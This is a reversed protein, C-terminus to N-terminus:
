RDPGTILSTLHSLFVRVEEPNVLRYDATTAQDNEAVLISIGRAGLADFADRDTADDGLYLPVVEPSELDLAQLLWLVAKGKDWDINPSLEFVKKGSTKRLPVHRTAVEDVVQEIRPVNDQHALRYHIAVTYTKDEVFAGDISRLRDRIEQAARAIIPVYEAGEKHATRAGDRGAIEFGHSGAYMVEDIAVMKRVDPLARGSIVVVPCTAVLNQVTNRMQDSMLADQPHDVIPTLTGDYDLFVVLRRHRLRARIESLHDLALPVAALKGSNDNDIELEILDSVVIDAGCQRLMDGDSSRAVGIVLAFKGAKGAEVGAVADEIVCAREPGVGLRHAAELYTDPAPKGRFLWERAVNGDVRGDFLDGIGAAELVEDCNRSSTVVAVKRGTSKIHRIFSVSTSYVDVGHERLLELYLANKRNGLGWITAAGPADHEDGQPLYIDRSQLFSAVGADRPKGDVYRKYDKELDFPHFTGGRRIARERLYSDFAKKWAIAHVKATQTVVGDLDFLVADINEWDAEQDPNGDACATREGINQGKAVRGSVM